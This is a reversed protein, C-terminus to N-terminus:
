LPVAVARNILDSLNEKSDICCRLGHYLEVFNEITDSPLIKTIRRWIELEVYIYVPELDQFPYLCEALPELQLDFASEDPSLTAVLKEIFETTERVYMALAFNPNPAVIGRRTIFDYEVYGWAYQM